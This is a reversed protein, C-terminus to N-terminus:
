ISWIARITTGQGIISEIQFEGGSLETRERMSEIGLGMQAKEMDFGQGDDRIMFSFIGDTKSLSVEVRHGKGHKAFNNL